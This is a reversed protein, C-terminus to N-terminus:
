ELEFRLTLIGHPALSVIPEAPLTAASPAGPPLPRELLDCLRACRVGPLGLRVRAGEVPAGGIEQLRVIVDRPDGRRAARCALVLVTPADVTVLPTTGADSSQAPFWPAHEHTVLPCRFSWAERMLDADRQPRRRDGPEGAAAVLLEAEVALRDHLAPEIRPFDVFGLDRTEGRVAHHLLEIWLDRAGEPRPSGLWRPSGWQFSFPERLLLTARFEAAAPDNPAATIEIAGSTCFGTPLSGPLFDDSGIVGAATAFRLSRADFRADLPLRQVLLFPDGLDRLGGLEGRDIEVLWRARGDPAIGIPLSVGTSGGSSGGLAVIRSGSDFSSL